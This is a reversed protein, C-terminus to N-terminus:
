GRLRQREALGLRIRRELEPYIEDVSQFGLTINLNGAAARAAIRKLERQHLEERLRDEEEAEARQEEKSRRPAPTAQRPPEAQKEVDRQRKEAEAEQEIKKREREKERLQRLELENNDALLTLRSQLQRRLEADQTAAIEQQLAAEQRAFEAQKAAIDDGLLRRRRQEEAFIQDQTAATLDRMAQQASQIQSILNDLRQQDILGLGRVIGLHAHNVEVASSEVLKQADALERMSLQGSDIQQFLQEYAQQQGQAQREAELAAEQINRFLDSFNGAQQAANIGSLISKYLRDFSGAAV